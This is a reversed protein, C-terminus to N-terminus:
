LLFHVLGNFLSVFFLFAAFPLLILLLPLTISILVCNQVFIHGWMLLRVPFSHLVSNSSKRGRPFSGSGIRHSQHFDMLKQLKREVRRGLQVDKENATLIIPEGIYTDWKVPKPLLFGGISSLALIMLIPSLFIKGSKIADMMSRLANSSLDRWWDPLFYYADECNRTFFPFIKVHKLKDAYKPDCLIRAFGPPSKWSVCYSEDSSKSFEFIGGPLLFLPRTGSALAQVFMDDSEDEQSDPSRSPIGGCHSILQGLLPVKFFLHSCLVYSRFTVLMAILDLTPRSHYGVMLSGCPSEKMEDGGHIEYGYWFSFHEALNDCCFRKVPHEPKGSWPCKESVFLPRLKAIISFLCYLTLIIKSLAFELQMMGLSILAFPPLLLLYRIRNM